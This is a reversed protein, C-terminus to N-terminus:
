KFDIKVVRKQLVGRADTRFIEIRTPVSVGKEEVERYEYGRVTLFKEGDVGAFGQGRACHLSLMDVLSSDRNQYFIMKQKNGAPSTREIPYYWLGEMKVPKLRKTFVVSKDLLRVPATTMDLIAEAFCHNEVAIPLACFQEAGELISFRGDSLQWIFKGQPELASIQICNSWPWIELHHETLYFSGDPKYFTVVCDFELKKAKTWAQRGGTAEIARGVYDPVLVNTEVKAEGAAPEKCERECGAVVFVSVLVLGFAMNSFRNIM